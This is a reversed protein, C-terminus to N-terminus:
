KGKPPAPNFKRIRFYVPQINGRRLHPYALRDAPRGARRNTGRPEVGPENTPDCAMSKRTQAARHPDVKKPRQVDRPRARQRSVFGAERGTDAHNEGAADRLAPGGSRERPEAGAESTPDGAM